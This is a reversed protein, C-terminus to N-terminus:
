GGGGDTTTSSCAQAGSCGASRVGVRRDSGPCSSRWGGEVNYGFSGTARWWKNRSSTARGGEYSEAHALPPAVPDILRGRGQGTKPVVEVVVDEVERLRARGSVQLNV